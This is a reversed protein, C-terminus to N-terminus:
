TLAREVDDRVAGYRQLQDPTLRVFPLGIRQCLEPLFEDRAERGEDLTLACAPQLTERHCLLFDFCRSSVQNNAHYWASRRPLATVDLVDLVRVRALVVFRPGFGDELLGLLEREAASFPEPKLAYPFQVAPHSFQRQKVYFVLAFCAFAVLTALLWSM